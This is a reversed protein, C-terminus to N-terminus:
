GIMKQTWYHQGNENIYIGIGMHTFAPHLLAERHEPSALWDNVVEQATHQRRALNEGSYNGRLGAAYLRDSPSTGDPCDHDFFGRTIMDRSHARAVEAVGDHWQLAQLGYRQRAANSLTFVQEELSPQQTSRPLFLFLLLLLLLLYRLM